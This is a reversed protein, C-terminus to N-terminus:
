DSSVREAFIGCAMVASIAANRTDNEGIFGYRNKKRVIGAEQRNSEGESLKVLFGTITQRNTKYFNTLTIM